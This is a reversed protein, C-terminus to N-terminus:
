IGSLEKGKQMTFQRDGHKMAEAAAKWKAQQISRGVGKGLIRGGLVCRVTFRASLEATEDVATNYKPLSVGLKVLREHLKSVITVDAEEEVGVEALRPGLLGKVFEIVEEQSETLSVAALYAQFADGPIQSKEDLITDPKVQVLKGFGYARAWVGVNAASFFKDRWRAIQMKSLRGDAHEFLIQTVAHILATNGLISLRDYSNPNTTTAASAHTFIQSRLDDRVRPLEPMVLPMTPNLSDVFVTAMGASARASRSSAAQSYPTTPRTLTTPRPAPPMATENNGLNLTPHGVHTAFDRNLRVQRICKLLGFRFAHRVSRALYYIIRWPKHAMRVTLNLLLRTMTENIRTLGHYKGRLAVLVPFVSVSDVELPLLRKTIFSIRPRVPSRPCEYQKGVM